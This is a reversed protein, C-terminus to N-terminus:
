TIPSAFDTLVLIELETVCRLNLDNTIFATAGYVLATGIHIADPVRLKYRARLDSMAVLQANSAM